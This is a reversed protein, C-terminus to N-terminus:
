LANNDILNTLQGQVANAITKFLGSLTANNGVFVFLLVIVIGLDMLQNWRFMDKPLARRVTWWALVVQAGHTIKIGIKKMTRRM